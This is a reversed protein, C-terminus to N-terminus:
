PTQFNKCAEIGQDLKEKQGKSMEYNPMRKEVDKWKGKALEGIMADYKEKSLAPKNDAVPKMTDADKTDDILFLGNLAYKRAYSSASGTIQSDDMGKRTEAERAFGEVFIANDESLDLITAKSCIYNHNGVNVISDTITLTTETQELLPKVAELIDEQNRYNYKGFSNYQNKPAKLQLQIKLLKQRLSM